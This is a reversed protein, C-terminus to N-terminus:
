LDKEFFFKLDNCVKAGIPERNENVKIMMVYNALGCAKTYLMPLFGKYAPMYKEVFKVIEEETM